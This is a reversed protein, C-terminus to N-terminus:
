RSAWVILGLTVAVLAMSILLTRLSFRCMFASTWSASAFAFSTLVLCWYPLNIRIGDDYVNWRLAAHYLEPPRYSSPIRKSRNVESFLSRGLVYDATPNASKNTFPSDNIYAVSAGGHMSIIHISRGASVFIVLPDRWWYSRVWLVVLLLAVVGWGVSWAMRLKRFKM